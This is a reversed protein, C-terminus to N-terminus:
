GGTAAGGGTAGVIYGTLYNTILLVLVVAFLTALPAGYDERNAVKNFLAVCVGVVVAVVIGQMMVFGTNIVGTGDPFATTMANKSACLWGVCGAGGPPATTGPPNAFVQGGNAIAFFSLTFLMGHRLDKWKKLQAFMKNKPKSLTSLM